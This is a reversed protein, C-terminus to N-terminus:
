DLSGEMEEEFSELSELAADHWDDICKELEKRVQAPPVAFYAYYYGGNSITETNRTILGASMLDGLSRQVSSRDRDVRKAVESVRQGNAALLVKYVKLETDSLSLLSRLMESCSRPPNANALRM